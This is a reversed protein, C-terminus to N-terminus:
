VQQSGKPNVQEGEDKNKLKDAGRTDELVVCKGKVIKVNEGQARRAKLEERLIRNKEREKQTMDKNIYISKAIENESNRLAKSAKLVEWKTGEDKLTVILVRPRDETKKGVRIAKEVKVNLRMEQKVIETFLESDERVREETETAASEPM